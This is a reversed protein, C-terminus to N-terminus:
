ALRALAAAHSRCFGYDAFAAIHAIPRSAIPL